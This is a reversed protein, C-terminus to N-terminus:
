ARDGRPRGFRNLMYWRHMSIFQFAKGCQKSCFKSPGFSFVWNRCAPNHCKGVRSFVAVRIKQLEARAKAMAQKKTM